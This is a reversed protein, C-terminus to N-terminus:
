EDYYEKNKDKQKQKMERQHDLYLACFVILTLPWFLVGWIDPHGSLNAEIILGAVIYMVLIFLLEITIM